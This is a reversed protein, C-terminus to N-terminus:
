FNIQLRKKKRHSKPAKQGLHELLLEKLLIWKFYYIHEFLNEPHFRICTVFSREFTWCMQFTHVGIWYYFVVRMFLNSMLIVSFSLSWLFILFVQFIKQLHASVYQFLIQVFWEKGIPIRLNGSFKSIAPFSFLGKTNGELSPLMYGYGLWM